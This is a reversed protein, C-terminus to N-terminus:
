RPRREIKSPQGPSRLLLLNPVPVQRQTIRRIGGQLKRPASARHAIISLVLLFNM